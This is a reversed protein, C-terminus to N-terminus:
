SIHGDIGITITQATTRRPPLLLTGKIYTNLLTYLLLGDSHLKHHQHEIADQKLLGETMCVKKYQGHRM